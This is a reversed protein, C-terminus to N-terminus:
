QPIDGSLKAMMALIDDDGQSTDGGKPSQTSTHAPASQKQEQKPHSQEQESDEGVKSTALRVTNGVALNFRKELEEPSKFRKPDLYQALSEMKDWEADDVKVVSPADFDSMDYNTQGKVKRIRLKFNAGGDLEFPNIAVKDKFTPKSAECIKEFIKSGFKYLFIKGNNEPNKEDEVVMINAIYSEKRKRGPKNSGQVGSVIEQNAKIDTKWLLSNQECCYCPEGITTPCEEIFWKGTPGEFGHSFVKVFLDDDDTKGPMFRITASGNGAQDRQPYYYTKGDGTSGGRQQAKNLQGLLKDMASAM